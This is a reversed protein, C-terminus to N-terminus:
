PCDRRPRSWATSMHRTATLCRIFFPIIYGGETYDIMMMEHEIEYRKTKDLTGIAQRYLATYRPNSFHTENFGGTPLTTFAVM